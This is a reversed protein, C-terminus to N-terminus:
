KIMKMVAGSPGAGGEIWYLRTADALLQGPSQSAAVVLEPEGGSKPAQWISQSDRCSWYVRAEDVAVGGAPGECSGLLESSGGLKPVRHVSGEGSVTFYVHTDDVALAEASHELLIIGEGCDRFITNACAWFITQGDSAMASTECGLMAWPEAAEILDRRRRMVSSDDSWYVFQPDLAMWKGASQGVEEIMSGGLLWRRVRGTGPETWYVYASDVVLGQGSGSSEIQVDSATGDKNASAVTAPSQATWYVRSDDLAITALMVIGSAIITPTCRMGACSGETCAHGCVGCHFRDSALDIECGNAPDGDCDDYGPSCEIRCMGQDCTATGHNAQCVRNCFGCHQVSTTDTECGDTPEDNCDATGDDCSLECRGLVCEATGRPGALCQVGCRGCHQLSAYVDTECGNAPLGDCDEFGPDCDFGCQGQRCAAVAGPVTPCSRECDGCTKAGAQLDSECGNAEDGDCDAYPELCEYRCVGHECSAVAHPMAPCAQGCGGCHLPEIRVDVECGTSQQGDCDHYGSECTLRCEGGDCSETANPYDAGPCAPGDSCQAAKATLPVDHFDSNCAGLAALGLICGAVYRQLM